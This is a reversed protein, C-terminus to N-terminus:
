EVQCNLNIEEILQWKQSDYYYLRSQLNYEGSNGAKILAALKVAEGAQITFEQEMTNGIIIYGNEEVAEFGVPLEIEHRIQFVSDELNIVETLQSFKSGPTLIGSFESELDTVIETIIVREEEGSHNTFLPNFMLGYIEGDGYQKYILAPYSVDGLYQHWDEQYNLVIQGYEEATTLSANLIRGEAPVTVGISEEMDANFGYEPVNGYYQAGILNQLDQMLFASGEQSGTFIYFLAKGTSVREELLQRITGINEWYHHDYQGNYIFNGGDLILYLDYNGTNLEEMFDTSTYICEIEMDQEELIEKLTNGSNDTSPNYLLARSKKELITTEVRFNYEDQKYFSYRKESINGALDEARVILEHEGEIDVTTGSEYAQGDLLIEKSSLNDDIIRVEISVPEQYIGDDEIGEVIIQPATKDLVFEISKKSMNGAKDEAIIELLYRGESSIVEDEYTMGNLTIRSSDLNIENINIEPSIDTNYYIGEEVNNIEIVPLTKDLLISRSKM